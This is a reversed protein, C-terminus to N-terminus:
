IKRKLLEEKKEQYEQESIVGADLLSKYKQLLDIATAEDITAQPVSESTTAAAAQKEKSSAGFLRRMAQMDSAISPFEYAEEFRLGNAKIENIDKAAVVHTIGGNTFLILLM